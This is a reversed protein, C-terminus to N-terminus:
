VGASFLDVRAHRRAQLGSRVMACARCRGWVRFSRVLAGAARRPTTASSFEFAGGCGVPAALGRYGSAFRGRRRRASLRALFAVIFLISMLAVCAYSSRT